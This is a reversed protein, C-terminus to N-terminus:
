HYYTFVDTGEPLPTDSDGLTHEAFGGAERM